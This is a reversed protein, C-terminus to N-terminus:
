NNYCIDINSLIKYLEINNVYKDNFVQYLNNFADIIIFQNYYNFLNSIM